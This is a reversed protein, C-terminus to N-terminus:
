RSSRAGRSLNANGSRVMSTIPEYSTRHLECYGHLRLAKLHDPTGYGMNQDWCYMPWEEHNLLMWQDREVKAMISAASVAPVKVDAEVIPFHPMTIKVQGDLVIFVRMPDQVFTCLQRVAEDFLEYLVKTKGYQDIRKNSAYKVCYRTNRDLRLRQYVATRNARRNKGTFRKSDKVGPAQWAMPALFAGVAYPGALAGYGVEDAGIIWEPKKQELFRVAATTLGWRNLLDKSDATM